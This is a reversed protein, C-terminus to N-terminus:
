QLTCFIFLDHAFKVRRIFTSILELGIPPIRCSNHSKLLKHVVERGSLWPLVPYGQGWVGAHPFTDRTSFPKPKPSFCAHVQPSAGEGLTLSCLVSHTRKQAREELFMFIIGVKYNDPPHFWVVSTSATIEAKLCYTSASSIIQVRQGNDIAEDQIQGLRFM